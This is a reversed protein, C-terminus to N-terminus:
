KVVECTKGYLPFSQRIPLAVFQCFVKTFLHFLTYSPLVKAIEPLYLRHVFEMFKINGQSSAM